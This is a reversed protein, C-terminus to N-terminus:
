KSGALFYGPVVMRVALEISSELKPGSVHGEAVRERAYAVRQRM